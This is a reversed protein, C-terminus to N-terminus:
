FATRAVVLDNYADCYAFHDLIQDHHVAISCAGGTTLGRTGRAGTARMSVKLCANNANYLSDEAAIMRQIGM